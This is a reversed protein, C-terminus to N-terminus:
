TRRLAAAARRALAAADTCTRQILELQGVVQPDHQVERLTSVIDHAREIHEAATGLQMIAAARDTTETHRPDM